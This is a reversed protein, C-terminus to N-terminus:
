LLPPTKKAVKAVNAVSPQAFIHAHTQSFIGFHTATNAVRVVVHRHTPPLARDWVRQRAQLVM